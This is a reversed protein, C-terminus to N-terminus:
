PEARPDFRAFEQLFRVLRQAASAILHAGKEATAAAANGCAGQPHLDHALWGPRAAQGNLGIMPFADAWRAQAPVFDEALAMAVLDPRLARMASTEVDGAHIDHALAAEDYDRAYDAFGFWSAHATIMGHRRRMERAAIELLATNGGHGNLFLCRKVGTGALSDGLDRLMALMTEAGFALTGPFALHEDSKTVTMTPLALVNQGPELGALAQSLVGDTLTSDVSLPLHPGHQETAGLPLIAVLDDPLDAFARSPQDAWYGQLSM